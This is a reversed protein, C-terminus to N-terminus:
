NLYIDKGPNKRREQAIKRNQVFQKEDKCQLFNNYYDKCKDKLLM